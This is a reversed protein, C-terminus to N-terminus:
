PPTTTPADPWEARRGSPAKPDTPAKDHGWELRYYNILRELFGEGLYAELCDYERYPADPARCNVPAKQGQSSTDGAQTAGTAAVGAAAVLVFWVLRLKECGQGSWTTRPKCHSEAALATAKM